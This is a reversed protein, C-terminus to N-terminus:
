FDCQRNLIEVHSVSLSLVSLICLFGFNSSSFVRFCVFFFGVGRGSM